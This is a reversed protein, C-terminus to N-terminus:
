EDKHVEVGKSLTAKMVIGVVITVGGVCAVVGSAALLDYEWGYDSLRFTVGRTDNLENVIVFGYLGRVPPNFITSVGGYIDVTILPDLADERRWLGFNSESLIYLKGRFDPSSEVTVRLTRKVPYFTRGIRGQPPMDFYETGVMHSRSDNAVTAGMVALGLIVLLLGLRVVRFRM